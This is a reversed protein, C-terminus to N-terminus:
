NCMAKILNRGNEAEAGQPTALDLIMGMEQMRRRFSSLDWGAFDMYNTIEEDTLLAIAALYVESM